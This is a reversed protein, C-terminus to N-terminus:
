EVRKIEEYIHESINKKYIKNLVKTKVCKSVCGTGKCLYIGKGTPIKENINCTEFNKSLSLRILEQKPRMNRCVVCM